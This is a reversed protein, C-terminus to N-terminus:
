LNFNELSTGPGILTFARRRSKERKPANFPPAEAIRFSTKTKIFGHLRLSGHVSFVQSDTLGQISQTSDCYIQEAAKSWRENILFHAKIQSSAETLPHPNVRRWGANVGPGHFVGNLGEERRRLCSGAGCVSDLRLPLFRRCVKAIDGCIKRGRFQTLSHEPSDTVIRWGEYFVTSKLWKLM